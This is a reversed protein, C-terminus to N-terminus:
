DYDDDSAFLAQLSLELETQKRVVSPLEPKSPKFGVRFKQTKVKVSQLVGAAWTGGISTGNSM